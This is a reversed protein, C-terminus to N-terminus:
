LSAGAGPGLAIAEHSRELAQEPYGLYWLTWAAHRRCNVEPHQRHDSLRVAPHQATGHSIMWPWERTSTRERRPSREWTSRPRGWCM